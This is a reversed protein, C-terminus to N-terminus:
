LNLNKCPFINLRYYFVCKFACRISILGTCICRKGFQVATSLYHSVPTGFIVVHSIWTGKRLYQVVVEAEISRLYKLQIIKIATKIM